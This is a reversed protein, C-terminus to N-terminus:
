VDESLWIFYVHDLKPRDSSSACHVCVMCYVCTGYFSIYLTLARRLFPLVIVAVAVVVVDVVIVVITQNCWGDM